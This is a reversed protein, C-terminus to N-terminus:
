KKATGAGLSSWHYYIPQLVLDNGGSGSCTFPHTAIMCKERSLAHPLLRM